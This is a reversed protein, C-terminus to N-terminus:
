LHIFKNNLLKPLIVKMCSQGITSSDWYCKHMKISSLSFFAILGSRDSTIEYNINEPILTIDKIGYEADGRKGDRRYNTSFVDAISYVNLWKINKMVDCRNNYFSPYYANIFEFPNGTTIILKTLKQINDSPPIKAIPFLADIALISGFSYTHFHIESNPENEAIHEILQDLNGLLIQSQEGATIYNDVCSFETALSTLITKSRPVFLLILTTISLIQKSYGSLKEIDNCTLQYKSNFFSIVANINKQFDPDNGTNNVILEICGPILFLICSSITLLILFAYFTQLPRTFGNGNFLRMIIQPFKKLVLFLLLLNKIIINYRNFRDTLIKHYQFDYLKYILEEESDTNDKDERNKRYICVLTCEKDVPYIKKEIKLYYFVGTSKFSLENKLREAYKEVTENDISQGLGTIYIGVKNTM